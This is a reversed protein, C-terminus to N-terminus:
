ITQQPKFVYGISLKGFMAGANIEDFDLHVATPCELIHPPAVRVLVQGFILARPGEVRVCVIDDECVDLSEATAASMHVHRRAVFLGRDLILSGVPGALKVGMTEDLKGSDGIPPRLGILRAETFSMEIQTHKRCPGIISASVYDGEPGIVDVKQKSLFDGNGDGLWNKEELEFGPGFLVDMDSSSLHVHRGSGEILATIEMM